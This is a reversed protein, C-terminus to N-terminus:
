NEDDTIEEATGEIEVVVGKASLSRKLEEFSLHRHEVVSPDGRLDRAKDTSIGAVTALSKAATPVQQIPIEEGERELRELMTDVVAAAREALRAHNEAQRQRIRRQLDERLEEYRDRYRSKWSRITPPPIPRGAKEMEEAAATSNGNHLAVFSLAQERDEATWDNQKTLSKEKSMLRAGSPALALTKAGITSRPTHSPSYGAPPPLAM